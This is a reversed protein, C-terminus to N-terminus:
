ATESNPSACEAARQLLVARERADRTLSAAREFEARAERTRGLKALLDGRVSPLLHYSRLETRSTLADALALGQAPGFAMTVAVARNLEVVATPTLTILTGYLAAIQAWDTQRATRARAHCTAIAAQIV